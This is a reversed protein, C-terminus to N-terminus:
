VVPRKDAESAGAKIPLEVLATRSTVKSIGHM